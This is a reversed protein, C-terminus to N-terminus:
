AYLNLSKLKITIGGIKLKAVRYDRKFQHITQLNHHCRFKATIYEITAAFTLKELQPPIVCKM